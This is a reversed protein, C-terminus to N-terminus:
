TLLGYGYCKFINEMSYPCRRHVTIVFMYNCIYLKKRPIRHNIYMCCAHVIRCVYIHLMCACHVNGCKYAKEAALLVRKTWSICKRWIISIAKLCATSSKGTCKLFSVLVNQLNSNQMYSLHSNQMYSLHSNQMYSLFAYKSSSPITGDLFLSCTSSSLICVISERVVSQM